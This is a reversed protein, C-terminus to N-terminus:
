SLLGVVLLVGGLAILIFGVNIPLPDNIAKLIGESGYFFGRAPDGQATVANVINITAGTGVLIWPLAKPM